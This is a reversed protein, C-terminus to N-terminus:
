SKKEIKKRIKEYENDTIKNKSRLGNLIAIYASYKILRQIDKERLEQM